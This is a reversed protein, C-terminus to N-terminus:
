IAPAALLSRRLGLRSPDAQARWLAVHDHVYERLTRAHRGLLRALTPDVAAAHGYRIGLHLLTQVGIQALPLGRGALHRAYGFASASAYHIPRGLEESLVRAAQAFTLAEPGTLTYARAAHAVPDGFAIAAVDAVDRVDVFAAAGRGAPVYLRNDEVLDRRYTDAFNQAFFGPRLLTYSGPGRRLHAEVAHHPVFRNEGAGAVSLFVLHGVGGYRAEDIFANLTPGVDRIAPPRLLFAGECDRLAPGFTARDFFDFPASEVGSPGPSADVARGAARV